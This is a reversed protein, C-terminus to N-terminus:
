FTSVLLTPTWSKGDLKWSDQPIIGFWQYIFFPIDVTNPVLRYFSDRIPPRFHSIVDSFSTWNYPGTITMHKNNGSVDTLKNTGVDDYGPWYGILHTKKPHTNDIHTIGALNAVENATFAANYIQLNSLQFDPNSNGDGAKKGIVLPANNLLSNGNVTQFANLEGDTYVKVTDATGSRSVVVTFSHWVGDNIQKTGFTQGSINSNWGIKNNGDRVEMFLNWGNGSFGVDRKSLIIPYNYSGTVNSKFFFNITFDTNPGFNYLDANQLTANVAPSGYTYRLANGEYPIQTSNPRSLLSRTFKPSYFFTITNRDNDGYSTNDVDTNIAPGGISSTIIVLWNEQGYTPRERIAEILSGVSEDFRRLANVYDTDNTEFSHAKGAEYPEMFHTIILDSSGNKIEETSKQLVEADSAVLSSTNADKFLSNLVDTDPSFAATMIDPSGDKIRKLITPYSALDAEALDNSTVQHKASTVGTMLSTLGTERSFPASEYDGLSGYSHLSNRTIIRFNPLELQQLARGRVGDAIIYLVKSSGSDYDPQKSFEKLINPFDKNCSSLALVIIVLPTCWQFFNKITMKAKM